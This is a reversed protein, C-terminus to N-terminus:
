PSSITQSDYVAKQSSDMLFLRIDSIDFYEVRAKYDDSRNVRVNFFVEFPSNPDKPDHHPTISDVDISLEKIRESRSDSFKKFALKLNNLQDFSLGHDMLKDLGLYVPQDPATGYTDPSKGPPSSVTEHSYPDNYEGATTRSTKKPVVVTLVFLVLLIIGALTLLVKKNTIKKM